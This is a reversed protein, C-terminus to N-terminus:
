RDVVITAEGEENLLRELIPYPMWTIPYDLGWSNPFRVAQRKDSAGILCVCHGGRINGLSANPDIWWEASRTTVQRRIPQDFLGYWNVGITVPVGNAICTRVEDVTTAWRNAAIGEASSVPQDKGRASVVHGQTRLVDMGARVSTGNDDGPNTEPWEDIMKAQDWLWRADYRKGNLISMMESSGFGVCSGERGQNYFMRWPVSPRYLIREVTQVTEPQVARLPYKEVHKWDSPVRRGLGSV